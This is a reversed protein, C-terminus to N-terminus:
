QARKPYQQLRRMPSVQAGQRAERRPSQRREPEGIVVVPMKSEIPATTSAVNAAVSNSGVEADDQTRWKRARLELHCGVCDLHTLRVISVNAIRVAQKPYRKPNRQYVDICQAVKEHLAGSLKCNDLHAKAVLFRRLGLQGSQLLARQSIEVSFECLTDAVHNLCMQAAVTIDFLGDERTASLGPSGICEVGLLFNIYLLMVSSRYQM